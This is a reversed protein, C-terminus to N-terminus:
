NCNFLHNFLQEDNMNLNIFYREMADIRVKWQRKANRM